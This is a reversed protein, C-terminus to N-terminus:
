GLMLCGLNADLLAVGCLLDLTVITGQSTINYQMSVRMTVDNYSGVASSVGHASNPLALPRTVLALANRHFALNFSGSPGPYADDLHTLATTLPRDLWVIADNADVADDESVIVTYTHRNAGTGFSILQGVQPNTFVGSGGIKQLRIGKSYGAAYGAANDVEVAKWVTVVAASSVGAELGAVLVLETTNTGDDTASSVVHPKGEGAVWVYEGDVVKYALITCNITTEGLPEAEDTVGDAYETSAKSLGGINQDMYTDFGLVRGLSADRLASGDDGRKEASIFLETALLDTESSASLVLNRDQPYARNVNMKERAALMYAKANTSDMEMLNGVRNAFFQHSQGCLIRDVASAMEQAGPQLYMEVLDQFSKSAEGDKITFSVYVHQDLPVQVNTSSADQNVVDDTDTKRKATFTGPRRTNVVDGFNAIENSFDRHVLRAMVMNEELIALGERAWLEPILADNDNAYCAMVPNSYLLNM